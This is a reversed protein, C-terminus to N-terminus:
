GSVTGSLRDRVMAAGEVMAKLKAFAADRGLYKMGCDPAVILREAPIHKLAATLREAVLEPSEPTESDLAIVGLIVTKSALVRLVAPDLHPQAAEVSIQDAATTDLEALVPYGDPKEKVMQAYGFCTHLATTGGVGDLARNVAKVAFVRAQEARSQIWPEDIQVVDAGAAFLDKIEENVAAAYDLAMAEDTDYFENVSQMAMTFPGPVTMKITRGSHARLFETDRVQVPERRRIPGVVRPVHMVRGTRGLVEGPNDIDVGDLATAFRNSYSERRIEGDTVIDVGAAEMDRIAEETAKDQAAELEAEPVRWVERARVRPPVQSRLKERDVLWDPQPYSGVVATPLLPLSM